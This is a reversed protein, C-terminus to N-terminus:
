FGKKFGPFVGKRSFTSGLQLECRSTDVEFSFGALFHRLSM